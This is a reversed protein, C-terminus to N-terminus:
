GSETRDAYEDLRAFLRRVIESGDRVECYVKERFMGLHKGLNVLAALKDHMRLTVGTATESVQAVASLAAIPRTESTHVSVGNPGWQAVDAINSFAVRALEQVVADQSIELKVARKAIAADIAGKILPKVLNETGIQNASKPSYGARLAAKTANLDVLYEGVFLKQKATLGNTKPV